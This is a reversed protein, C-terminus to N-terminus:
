REFKLILDVGNKDSNGSQLRLFLNKRFEYELTFQDPVYDNSTTEGFGKQYTIFIDKTIYKGVVFAMSQLNESTNIEIIDLNFTEGITQSLQNSVIKSVMDATVSGAVGTQEGSGIESMPKGFIIYSYADSATIVQGDITYNITPHALFDTIRMRLVKKAEDSDRFEYETTIDLLPNIQEGGQFEIVGATIVFKKGYVALQGRTVEIKGQLSFNAGKKVVNVEGQLEIKSTESKLWSNKPIDVKILAGLDHYFSDFYGVESKIERPRILLSDQQAMGQKDRALVLLSPKISAAKYDTELFTPYYFSSKIVDIDGRLMPKAEEMNLKLDAAVVVEREKSKVVSFKNTKLQMNVDTVKGSVITSDFSVWGSATLRNALDGINLSDLTVLNSDVSISSNVHNLYIGSKIDNYFGDKLLAAGRYILNSYHGAFNLDFSLLGGIKALRKNAAERVALDMDTSKARGKLHGPFHLNVGATDVKFSLPAIVNLALSDNFVTLLLGDFSAQNDTIEFRGSVRKATLSAYQLSDVAIDVNVLPKQATGDITLSGNLVGQLENKKRRAIESFISIDLGEIRLDFAEKGFASISGNANFSFLPNLRDKILFGKIDLGWDNYELEIATLANYFSAYPTEVMLSDIVVHYGDILSLQGVLAGKLQPSQVVRVDARLHTRDFDGQYNLSDISDQGLIIESAAVKMNNGKIGNRSNYNMAGEFNVAAVRITDYVLTLLNGKVLGSISDSQGAFNAELAIYGSLTTTPAYWKAFPRVNGVLKLDGIWSGAFTTVGSGSLQIDSSYLMFDDIKVTDARLSLNVFASDIEVKDALSNELTLKSKLDLGNALSFTGAGSMNGNLLATFPAEPLVFRQPKLNSFSGNLWFQNGNGIDNLTGFFSGDGVNSQINATLTLNKNEVNGKLQTQALRYHTYSASDIFIQYDVTDKLSMFRKTHALVTATVCSLSDIAVGWDYPKVDKFFVRALINQPLFITDSLQNFSLEGDILQEEMSIQSHCITIGEITNVEFKFSPKSKLKIPPLVFELERLDVSDSLLTASYSILSSYIGKSYIHNLGTKLNFDNLAIADNESILNFKFDVIELDPKQALLNLQEIGVRWVSSKWFFNGKIAKALLEQPIYSYPTKSKIHVDSFTVNKIDVKFATTITDVDTSDSILPKHLHEFCWSSDPMTYALIEIGSLQVSDVLVMKDLLSLPSYYVDVDKIYAVKMSDLQMSISSLHIHTFINGSLEKVEIKANLYEHAYSLGLTLIKQKGYKSNLFLSLAIVVILITALLGFIVWKFYRM